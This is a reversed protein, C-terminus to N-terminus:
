QESVYQVSVKDQTVSLEKMVLNVISVAQKVDLKDSTVLVKYSDGAEEKVVAMGYQQQLQEEIGDIKSAKEELRGLQEHALASEEPTKEMDNIQVLLDNYEQLNRQERDYLYTSFYQASAATSQAAMEKLVEEDTKVSVATDEEAAPADTDKSKGADPSATAQPAATAEANGTGQEKAGDDEAAAAQDDLGGTETIVEDVIIGQEGSVPVLGNGGEVKGSDAQIIGATEQPANAGPDGTFLYYASLVVMLSLMSVLWITQRKGRM